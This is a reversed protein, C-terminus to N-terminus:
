IIFIMVNVILKRRKGRLLTFSGSALLRSNNINKITIIYHLSGLPGMAYLFIACTYANPDAIM